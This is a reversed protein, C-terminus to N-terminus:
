ASVKSLELELVAKTLAVDAAFRLGRSRTAMERYGDARGTDGCHENALILMAVREPSMSPEVVFAQSAAVRSGQWDGTKAKTKADAYAEDAWCNRLATTETNHVDVLCAVSDDDLWLVESLMVGSDILESVALERRTFIPRLVWLVTGRVAPTYALDIAQGSLKLGEWTDNDYYNRCYYDADTSRYDLAQTYTIYNGSLLISELVLHGYSFASKGSPAVLAGVIRHETLVFNSTTSM